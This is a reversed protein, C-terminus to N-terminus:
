ALGGTRVLQVRLKELCRGRTPGISGVPMDLDNALVTYDPRPTTAVIRLLRQCREPLQKLCDWLRANEDDLVVQQEPAPEDPLHRDLIDDAEPTQRTGQKAVRWAERRATTCLWGSVARAEAIGDASRVLALWTTQVVDEATERDLGCARVVQWLVPSLLLVLDDMGGQDGDRWRQFHQASTEWVSDSETPQRTMTQVSESLRAPVCQYM